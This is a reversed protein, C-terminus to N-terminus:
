GRISAHGKDHNQCEISRLGHTALVARQSFCFFYRNIIPLSPCRDHCRSRLSKVRGRPLDISLDSAAAIASSSFYIADTMGAEGRRRSATGRAASGMPCAKAMGPPQGIGHRARHEQLCSRRPCSWGGPMRQSSPFTTVNSM